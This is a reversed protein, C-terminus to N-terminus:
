FHDTHLEWVQFSKFNTKSPFWWVKSFLLPPVFIIVSSWWWLGCSAPEFTPTPNWEVQRKSSGRFMECVIRKWNVLRNEHPKANTWGAPHLKEWNTKKGSGPDCLAACRFAAVLRLVDRIVCAVCSIYARIKKKNCNLFVSYCLMFVSASCTPYQVYIYTIKGM